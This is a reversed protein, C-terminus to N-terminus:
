RRLYSRNYPDLIRSEMNSSDKHGLLDILLGNSFASNLFSPFKEHKCLSKNVRSRISSRFAKKESFM